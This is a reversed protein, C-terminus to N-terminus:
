LFNCLNNFVTVLFQRM